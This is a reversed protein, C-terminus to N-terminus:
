DFPLIPRECDRSGTRCDAGVPRKAAQCGDRTALRYGPLGGLQPDTTPELLFAAMAGATTGAMARRARASKASAKGRAPQPPTSSGSPGTPADSFSMRKSERAIM